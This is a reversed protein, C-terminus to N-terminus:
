IHLGVNSGKQIRVQEPSTKREDWELTVDPPELPFKWKQELCIEPM